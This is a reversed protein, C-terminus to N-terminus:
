RSARHAAESKRVPFVAHRLDSYSEGICEIYFAPDPLMERCATFSISIESAYSFVAHFLGSMDVVPGIGMLHIMKAGAFYLPRRSGTVNTIITNFPRFGTYTLFGMAAPLLNRAVPAPLNMPIETLTGAGISRTLAKAERTAEHIAHMRKVPDAIDSHLSANMISVMNDHGDHIGDQCRINVPCAAVLSKDPLHGKSKLYKRLAGSVVTLVVDNITTNEISRSIEKMEALDFFRADMVRSASARGVNFV